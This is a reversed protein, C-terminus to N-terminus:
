VFYRVAEIDRIIVGEAFGLELGDFIMGCVRIAEATHLIRTGPSTGEKIPVVIFMVMDAQIQEGRGHNVVSLRFRNAL